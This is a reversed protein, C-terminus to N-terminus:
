LVEYSFRFYTGPFSNYSGFAERIRDVQEDPITISLTAM